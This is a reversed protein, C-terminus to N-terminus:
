ITLLFNLDNTVSVNYRVDIKEQKVYTNLTNEVIFVDVCPLAASAFAFDKVDNRDLKKSSNKFHRLKIRAHINLTPISRLLSLLDEDTQIVKRYDRINLGLSSLMEILRPEIELAYTRKLLTDLKEVEKLQSLDEKLHAMEDVSGEWLGKLKEMAEIDYGVSLMYTFPNQQADIYDSLNFNPNVIKAISNENLSLDEATVGLLEYFSTGFKEIESKEKGFIIALQDSFEILQQVLYPRLYVKKSLEDFIKLLDERQKQDRIAFTEMYHVISLPLKWSGESVKCKIKLYVEKFKEAKQNGSRVRAM